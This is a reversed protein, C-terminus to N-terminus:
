WHCHFMIKTLHKSATNCNSNCYPSLVSPTPLVTSSFQETQKQHMLNKAKLAKLKSVTPQADPLAELWYFNLLPTNIHNDTQLLICITWSIGSGDLVWDDRAENLDLSTKGKQYWSVWTPIRNLSGLPICPQTSRTPQNCVSVTYGDWYYGPGVHTLKTWAITDAYYKSCPRQAPPAHTHTHTQTTQAPSTGPLLENPGHCCAARRTVAWSERRCEAPSRASVRRFRCTRM